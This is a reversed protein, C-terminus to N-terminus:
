SSWGTVSPTRRTSAASGDFPEDGATRHGAESLRRELGDLDDVLLAPHAKPAPAFPEEVGLHLEVAESRFRCGGRGALDPPKPVEALGLVGGYFARAEDRGAPMALQVHHLGLLRIV